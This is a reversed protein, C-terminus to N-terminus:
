SFSQKRLGGFLMLSGLVLLAGQWVVADFERLVLSGLLFMMSYIAMVGGLWAIWLRHGFGGGPFPWSGGPRVRRHFAELKERSVPRTLFTVTLMVIMSGFVVIVAKLYLPTQVKNVIDFIFIGTTLAFSTAM